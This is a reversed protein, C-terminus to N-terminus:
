ELSGVGGGAEDLDVVHLCDSCCRLGEDTQSAKMLHFTENKWGGEEVKMM